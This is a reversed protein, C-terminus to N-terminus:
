VAQRLRKSREDEGEHTEKLSLLCGLEVAWDYFDHKSDTDTFRLRTRDLTDREFFFDVYDSMTEGDLLDLLPGFEQAFQAKAMSGPYLPHEFLQVAADHQIHKWTINHWM